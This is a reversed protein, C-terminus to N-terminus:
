AAGRIECQFNYKFLQLLTQNLIYDVARNVSPEHEEMYKTKVSNMASVYRDAM